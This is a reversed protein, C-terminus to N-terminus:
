NTYWAIRYSSFEREITLVKGPNINCIKHVSIQALSTFSCMQEMSKIPLFCRQNQDFLLPYVVRMWVVAKQEYSFHWQSWQKVTVILQRSFNYVNRPSMDALNKVVKVKRDVVSSRSLLCMSSVHFSIVDNAGSSNKQYPHPPACIPIRLFM